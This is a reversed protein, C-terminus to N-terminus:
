QAQAYESQVFTNYDLEGQENKPMLTGLAEADEASLGGQMLGDVTVYQKGDALASFSQVVQDATDRDESLTVLWRVYAEESVGEAKGESVQAYTQPLEEDKMSVGVSSAAAKFEDKLM